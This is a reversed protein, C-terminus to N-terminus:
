PVEGTGRGLEGKEKILSKRGLGYGVRIKKQSLQSISETFMVIVPLDNKKRGESLEEHKTQM